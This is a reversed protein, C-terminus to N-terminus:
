EKSIGYNKFGNVISKSSGYNCLTSIRSYSEATEKNNPQLKLAQKCDDLADKYNELSEKAQM